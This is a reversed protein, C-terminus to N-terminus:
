IIWGIDDIPILDFNDLSNTEGSTCLPGELQIPWVEMEPAVYDKKTM